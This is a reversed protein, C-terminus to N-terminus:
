LWKSASAAMMWERTLRMAAAKDDSQDSRTVEIFTCRWACGNMACAFIEGWCLNLKLLKCNLQISYFLISYFLPVFGLSPVSLFFYLTTSIQFQDTTSTNPSQDLHNTTTLTYQKSYIQYMSFKLICFPQFLIARTSGTTRLSCSSAYWM